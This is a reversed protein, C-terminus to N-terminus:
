SNIVPVFIEVRVVNFISRESLGKTLYSINSTVTFKGDLPVVIPM